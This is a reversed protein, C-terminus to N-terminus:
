DDQCVRMLSRRGAEAFSLDEGDLGAAMLVSGFFITWGRAREWTPESVGSGTATTVIRQAERRADATSLLMWIAALDTARDGRCVDGWDIVAALRGEDSIVNRPHLDGHLWTPAVDIPVARTRDWIRRVRDLEASTLGDDRTALMAHWQGVADARTALPVGRWENLPADDPAPQHLAVLFRALPDAARADLPARDVSAGAYWPVVSWPWPYGAGPRGTRLPTPVPIPLRPALEPLWRQEVAMLPVGFARRPLRAALDDGIRVMTCDFGEGAITLPADALDPHQESLLSRVLDEDIAVEAPPIGTGM